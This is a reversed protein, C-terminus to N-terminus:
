SRPRFPAPFEARGGAAPAIRTSGGRRPPAPAAAGRDAGPRLSPKRGAVLRRPRDVLVLLLLQRRLVPHLLLVGPRLRVLGLVPRGSPGSATPRRDAAACRYQRTPRYLASEATFGPLTM